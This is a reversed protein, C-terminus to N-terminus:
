NLLEFEEIHLVLEHKRRLSKAALFGTLTLQAGPPSRHLAIAIEGIALVPAECDVKRLKGAEQQESQHIIATELVPIGAPTYRLPQQAFLTGTLRVKNYNDM